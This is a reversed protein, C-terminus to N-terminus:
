PETENRQVTRGEMSMKHRFDNAQVPTIKDCGTLDVWSIQDRKFIDPLCAVTIDTKALHLITLNKLTVLAKVAEDGTRTDSLNLEQLNDLKSLKKIGADTVRTASLNLKILETAKGIGELGDDGVHTSALNLDKISTEAFQKAGADTINENESLDVTELRPLRILTAILKDTVPAESLNIEQLSPQGDPGLMKLLYPGVADHVHTKRLDMRLINMGSLYKIGRETIKHSQGLEVNRVFTNGRAVKLANDSIFPDHYSSLTHSTQDFQGAFADDDFVQARYPDDGKRIEGTKSAKRKVEETSKTSNSSLWIYSGVLPVALAGSVLAVALLTKATLQKGEKEERIAAVSSSSTQESQTAHAALDAPIESKSPTVFLGKDASEIAEKLEVMSKFRNAPNKELLKMVIMELYPSIIPDGDTPNIPEPKANLHMLMTEMKTEGVFPPEGTLCHYMVCGLSYLDSTVDLQKGMVQEPSMFAPTGVTEGTKTLHEREDDEEGYIVKALGFDLIKAIDPGNENPVMMINSPKLDRHLIGKSHAHALGDCLQKIVLKTDDVSLSGVQDLVDSLPTGEVYDMVMFPQNDESIGFDYVAIINAHSIRGITTAEQQFRKVATPTMLHSHIMKVAVLRGLPKQTAKYIVGAGGAGLVSIFEYKDKLPTRPINFDTTTKPVFNVPPQPTRHSRASSGGQEPLIASDDGTEFLSTEDQSDDHSYRGM